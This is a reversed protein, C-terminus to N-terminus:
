AYIGTVNVKTVIVRYLGFEVPQVKVPLTFTTLGSFTVFGPTAGLIVDGTEGNVAFTRTGLSPPTSDGAINIEVDDHVTAPVETEKAYARTSNGKTSAYFWAYMIAITERVTQPKTSQPNATLLSTVGAATAYYIQTTASYPGPKPDAIKWHIYFDEDRSTPADTSDAFASMWNITVSVLKSPLDMSVSDYVTNALWYAELGLMESTIKVDHYTNAHRIEIKSGTTQAIPEGDWPEIVERTVKISKKFEDLYVLEKTLPEIFRRQVIVYLSDLETQTKRVTDDAFGYADFASDPTAAEPASFDGSAYTDRPVVYTRILENGTTIEWNYVDQDDRDAAFYWKQKGNDDAPAIFVLKHSPFNETHPFCSNFSMGYSPTANKPLKGDCTVYFLVDTASASPYIKVNTRELVAM